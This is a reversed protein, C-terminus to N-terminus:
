MPKKIYINEKKFQRLIEYTIKMLSFIDNKLFSYIGCISSIIGIITWVDM